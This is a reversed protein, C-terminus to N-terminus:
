GRFISGLGVGALVTVFFFGGVIIVAILIIWIGYKDFFSPPNWPTYDEPPEIPSPNEPLAPDRAKYERIVLGEIRVTYTVFYDVPVCEVIAGSFPFVAHLDWGEYAGAMLEFPLYVVISNEIDPDLVKTIDWPIRAYATAFTGDDQYMNLQSGVSEINRVWGNHSEEVDPNCKGYTYEEVKANMIGLWYAQFTYNEPIPGFNPIGWPLCSFRAYCGGDFSIGIHNGGSGLAERWEYPMATEHWWENTPFGAHHLVVTAKTRVQVDFLYEHYEVIYKYDEYDAELPQYPMKPTEERIDSVTAKVDPLGYESDDADWQINATPDSKHIENLNNSQLALLETALEWGPRYTSQRYGTVLSIAIVALVIIILANKGKLM